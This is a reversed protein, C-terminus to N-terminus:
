HGGLADPSVHVCDCITLISLLKFINLIIISLHVYIITLKTATDKDKNTDSVKGQPRRCTNLRRNPGFFKKWYGRYLQRLPLWNKNQKTKGMSHRERGREKM